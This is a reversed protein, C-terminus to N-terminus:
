LCSISNDLCSISNDLCSISNDLCSISHNRRNGSRPDFFQKFLINVMKVLSHLDLKCVPFPIIWVLFPIIEGIELDQILFKTLLINVMKESSDLDLKVLLM